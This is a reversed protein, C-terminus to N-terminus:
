RRETMDHRALWAGLVGFYAPAEPAQRPFFAPDMQTKADVSLMMAHDAGAIVVTEVNPLRAAARALREVSLQVPVWPDAAGYVVLTPTKVEALTALPDHRMEKLWRSQAPDAPLETGMYVRDFWPRAKAAELAKQASARDLEGRLYADVARRAGVAQEVDAQSYGEVSLMNAVAFNMQADPTTMPASVSIVFAASPSRAGALVAIWGGQSLGWFGIRRPDVAPLRELMRQAAIADDALTAYDSAALEGRSAGSGRRDYVFTALGLPPLLEILHRYLPLDRTPSSAAHTVVVAPVRSRGRPVFLTGSLSTAGNSFALERAEVAISAPAKWPPTAAEAATAAIADSLGLSALLLRALATRRSASATEIDCRPEQNARRM